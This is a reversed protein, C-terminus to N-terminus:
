HAIDHIISAVEKPMALHPIHGTELSYTHTIGADAVMQQQLKLTIARDQLAHIYYKNVRGFNQETLVVPNVIPILPEAKHNELVMPLLDDAVDHYFVTTLKDFPIDATLRDESFVMHAKALSLDDQESLDKLSQGNAPVFAALYVLKDIKDPIREAVASIVMGGLSHGVLIVKGRIKNIVEVVADRYHNM